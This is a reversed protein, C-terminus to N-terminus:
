PEEGSHLLRRLLADVEQDSLQDIQQMVRNAQTHNPQEQNDQQEGNHPHTPSDQEDAVEAAIVTSLYHALREITPFDQAVTPSFDHGLWESLEYALVTAKVSDMGYYLFSKSTDIEKVFLNEEAAIWKVLWSEIMGASYTTSHDREQSKTQKVPSPEALSHDPWHKKPESRPRLL